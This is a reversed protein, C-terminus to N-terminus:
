SNRTRAMVVPLFSGECPVVCLRREDRVLQQVLEQGATIRLGGKAPVAQDVLQLAGQRLPREVGLHVMMQVALRGLAPGVAAVAVAALRTSVSVPLSGIATGRSRSAVKSGCSIALYRRRRGPKSSLIM